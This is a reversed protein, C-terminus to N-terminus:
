YDRSKMFIEEMVEFKSKVCFASCARWDATWNAFSWAFACPSHYDHMCTWATSDNLKKRVFTVYDLWNM